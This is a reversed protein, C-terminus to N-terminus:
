GTFSPTARVPTAAPTQGTAQVAGGPTDTDTTPVSSTTPAPCDFRPQTAAAGSASAEVYGTGTLGLIAQASARPANAADFGTADFAIGGRDAEPDDCDQQLGLLFGAGADVAAAEGALRLAYTALGTSNGNPAGDAATAFGGGPGQLGVLYAIAADIEDADTPRDAASLALLATATSDVGSECTAPDLDGSFGGDACQSGLLLDLSPDSPSVGDERVLAIIAFAHGFTKFDNGYDPVDTFRGTGDEIDLLRQILDVGGEGWNRADLGRTQAVIALKALGGSSEHTTFDDPGASPQGDGAYADTQASEELWDTAAAGFDDAVGAAALAVVADATLGYDPFVDEGFRAEFREGDVLQDALWSGAAEAPTADDAQAGAGAPTLGLGAAVIAGGALISAARVRFSRGCPVDTIAM